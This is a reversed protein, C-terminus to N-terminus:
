KKPCASLRSAAASRLATIQASNSMTWSQWITNAKRISECEGHLLLAHSALFRAGLDSSQVFREAWNAAEARRDLVILVWLVSTTARLNKPQKEAIPQLTALATEAERIAAQQDNAAQLAIAVRLRARAERTLTGLDGRGSSAMAAEMGALGRRAMEVAARPDRRRLTVSLESQNVALAAKPNRNNPDERILEEWVALSNRRAAISADPDELSPSIYSDLSEAIAAWARGRARRLPLRDQPPAAALGEDIMAVIRRYTAVGEKVMGLSSQGDGVDMAANVLDALQAQGSERLLSEARASNKIAEPVNDTEGIARGLQLYVRSLAIKSNPNTREILAVAEQGAAIAGPTDGIERRENALNALWDALRPLQAADRAALLRKSAVAKELYRVSETRRGLNNSSSGGIARSLRYYGTAADDLISPDSAASEALKDIYQTATSLLMAQANTNGPVKALEDNLDFLFSKALVRVDNFRRTAERAQALAYLSTGILGIVAVAAVAVAARNRRIFKATKYLATEPRATIPLHELFRRLDEALEAVSGYRRAPEKRMAKLIINDLDGALRRNLTSPAAVPQECIAQAWGLPTNETFKHPLAGTLMEYLVAGLAYVDTAATISQSLVQEPAAYDPTMPQFGLATLTLDAGPGELIKAIGFDLLKPTGEPSVLINGPKLDRHVVMNRHAYEVAECIKQFLAIRTNLPPNNQQCWDNLPLGEVFEMVLFPQQNPGAGGDLLRAIYPHELGALIAREQRFRHLTSASNAGALIMKLAGRQRFGDHDRIAEYVSGMGGEGISRVIHWEGVSQGILAQSPDLMQAAYQIAGAIPDHLTVPDAHALLGIVEARVADNPCAALIAARQDPPLEAVEAFLADVQDWHDPM